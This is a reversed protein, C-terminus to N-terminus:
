FATVEKKAHVSKLIPEVKLALHLSPVVPSLRDQLDICTCNFIKLVKLYKYTGISSTYLSRYVVNIHLDLFLLFTVSSHMNM